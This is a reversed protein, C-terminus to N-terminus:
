RQRELLLFSRKKKVLQKVDTRSRISKKWEQSQRMQIPRREAENFLNMQTYSDAYKESSSGFQKQQALTLQDSLLADMFELKRM